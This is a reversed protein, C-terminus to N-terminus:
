ECSRRKPVRSMCDHCVDTKFADVLQRVNQSPVASTTQYLDCRCAQTPAVAYFTARQRTHALDQIIHLHRCFSLRERAVIQMAYHENRVAELRDPPLDILHLTSLSLGEIDANTQAAVLEDEDQDRANKLQTEITNFFWEGRSLSEAQKVLLPYRFASARQLAGTALEKAVVVNGLAMHMEALRLTLRIEEDLNGISAALQKASKVETILECIQADQNPQPRGQPAGMLREMLLRQFKALAGVGKARGLFVPNHLQTALAVLETQRTILADWGKRWQGHHHGKTLWPLDVHQAVQDQANITLLDTILAETEATVLALALQFRNEVTDNVDGVSENHLVELQLVLAQVERPNRVQLYENWVKGAQHQRALPGTDGVIAGENALYQDRGLRGLELDCANSILLLLRQSSGDLESAKLRATVLHGDASAYRGRTYEAYGLALAIAPLEREAHTLTSANEVLQQPAGANCFAVGQEAILKVLDEHKEIEFTSGDIVLQISSSAAKYVLDLVQRRLIGEKLVRERIEVCAAADLATCLRLTVNGQAKWDGNTSEIRKVEDRVWAYLLANTDHVYVIYLPSRGNLLYNLNPVEAKYSLSGDQNRADTLRSKVQVDSRFNTAWGNLHVEITGDIGFDDVREDRLRLDDTLAENLRKLSRHQNRNYEDVQPLRGGLDISNTV